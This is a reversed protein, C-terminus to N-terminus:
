GMFTDDNKMIQKGYGHPLGNEIQGEYKVGNKFTITQINDM